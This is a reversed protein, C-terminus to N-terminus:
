EVIPGVVARAEAHWHVTMRQRRAGGMVVVLKAGTYFTRGAIQETTFLAGCSAWPFNFDELVTGQELDYSSSSAPKDIFRVPFNVTVAAEGAGHFTLFYSVRTVDDSAGSAREVTGRRRELSLQTPRIPTVM